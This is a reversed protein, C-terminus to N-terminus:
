FPVDTNKTDNQENLSYEEFNGNELFSFYKDGAIIVHDLLTIGMLKSAKYLNSTVNFDANSPTPNESPHNHAIIIGAADHIIASKMIERSYVQTHNITGTFVIENTIIKNWTNLYLVKFCEKKYGRMSHKLYDYVAEPSNMFPEDKSKEYLYINAVHYPLKLGILFQDQFGPLKKLELPSEDIIANLTKYRKTLEKAFSKHSKGDIKMSLLFEVIELQDFSSLDNRLYRNKLEQNRQM